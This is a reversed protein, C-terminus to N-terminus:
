VACCARLVAARTQERAALVRAFLEAFTRDRVFSRLCLRLVQALTFECLGVCFRLSVFCRLWLSGVSVGFCLRLSVFVCLCLTGDRVFSCLRLVLAFVCPCLM